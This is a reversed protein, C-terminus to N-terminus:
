DNIKHGCYPCYKKEDTKENGKMASIFGASIIGTPVAVIGIGLLAIVSALIKGGVTIPYVDGYGVTTLTCVAWWLSAIVNPFAEPQAPNEVSYMLISALILLIICVGISALLQIASDKLIKTIVHLSDLYRGFKLIRLLRAMRLLRLLRLFRLDAAIFPLYFPLIALLDIIAMFSFVYKLYPHKSDPYLLDATWIRAIYELTFIIVTVWEFATFWSAYKEQLTSFSELIISLVSLVILVMITIDFIRSARDGEDAKSVIAFVRNKLRKM